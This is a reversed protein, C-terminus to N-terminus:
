SSFGYKAIILIATSSKKGRSRINHLNYSLATMEGLKELIELGGLDPFHAQLQSAFDLLHPSIESPTDLGHLKAENFDLPAEKTSAFHAVAHSMYKALDKSDLSMRLERKTQYIEACRNAIADYLRNSQEYMRSCKSRPMEHVEVSSFYCDLLDRLTNVSKGRRVWVDKLRSLDADWTSPRQIFAIVENKLSRTGGPFSSENDNLVLIAHPLVPQNTSKELANIGLEIM